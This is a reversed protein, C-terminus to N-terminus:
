RNQDKETLTMKIKGKEWKLFKKENWSINQSFSFTFLNQILICYKIQEIMTSKRLIKWPNLFGTKQPVTLCWYVM